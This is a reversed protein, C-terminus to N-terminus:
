PRPTLMVISPSSMRQRLGLRASSSAKSARTRSAFGAIKSTKRSNGAVLVAVGSWIGAVVVHQCQPPDRMHSQEVHPTIFGDTTHAAPSHAAQLARFVRKWHIRPWGFFAQPISRIGLTQLLSPHPFRITASSPPGSKRFCKQPDAHKFISLRSRRCAFLDRRSFRRHEWQPRFGISATGGGTRLSAQCDSLSEFIATHFKLM